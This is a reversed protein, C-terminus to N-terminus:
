MHCGQLLRVRICQKTCQQRLLIGNMIGGGGVTLRGGASAHRKCTPVLSTDRATSKCCRMHAMCMVQRCDCLQAGCTQRRCSAAAAPSAGRKQLLPVPRRLRVHVACCCCWCCSVLPLLLSPPWLSLAGIFLCTPASGRAGPPSTGTAAGGGQPHGQSRMCPAHPAKAALGMLQAVGDM